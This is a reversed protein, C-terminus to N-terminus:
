NSKDDLLFIYLEITDDPNSNKDILDTNKDIPDMIKEMTDTNKDDSLILIENSYPSFSLIQFEEIKNLNSSYTYMETERIQKNIPSKLNQNNNLINSVNSIIKLIIQNNTPNISKTSKTITQITSKIKNGVSVPTVNMSIFFYQVCEIFYKITLNM